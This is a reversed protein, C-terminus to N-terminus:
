INEIKEFAEKVLSILEKSILDTQGNTLTGGSIVKSGLPLNEVFEAYLDHWQLHGQHL